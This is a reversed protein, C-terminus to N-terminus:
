PVEEKRSERTIHTMVRERSFLSLDSAIKMFLSREASTLVSALATLLAARIQLLPSVISGNGGAKGRPFPTSVVAFTLRHMPVIVLMADVTLGALGGNVATTLALLAILLNM